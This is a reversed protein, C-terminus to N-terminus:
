RCVGVVPDAGTHQGSPTCPWSEQTIGRTLPPTLETVRMVRPGAREGPLLPCLPFLMKGKGMGDRLLRPPTADVRNSEPQQPQSVQIGSLLILDLTSGLHLAHDAKPSGKQHFFAQLSEQTVQSPVLHDSISAQLEWISLSRSNLSAKEIDPFSFTLHSLFHISSSGEADTAKSLDPNSFKERM